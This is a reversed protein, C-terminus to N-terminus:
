IAFYIRMKGMVGYLDLSDSNANIGQLRFAQTAGPTVYASLNTVGPYLYYSTDWANALTYMCQSVSNSSRFTGGTDKIGFNGAAQLMNLAGSEEKRQNTIWDVYVYSIPNKFDPIVFDAADSSTAVNHISVFDRIGTYIEVYQYPLSNSYGM